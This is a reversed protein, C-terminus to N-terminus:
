LGIKCDITVNRNFDFNMTVEYFHAEPKTGQPM